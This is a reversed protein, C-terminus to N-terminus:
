RQHAAEDPEYSGAPSLDVEITLVDERVRRFLEQLEPTGLNGHDELVIGKERM